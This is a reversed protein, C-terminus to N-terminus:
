SVLDGFKNMKLTFTHKGNQAELNHQNIKNLNMKFIAFRAAEEDASKYSKNHTLKFANWQVQMVHDEIAVAAGICLALFCLAFKM